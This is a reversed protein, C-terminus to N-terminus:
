DLLLEAISKNSTLGHLDQLVLGSDLLLTQILFEISAANTFTNASRNELLRHEGLIQSIDKLTVLRTLSLFKHDVIPYLKLNILM